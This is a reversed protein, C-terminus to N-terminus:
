NKSSKALAELSIGAAIHGEAEAIRDFTEQVPALDSSLKAPSETGPGSRLAQLIQRCDIRDISRAPAYAPESGSVEVLLDARKLSQLIQLVFQPPFKLHGAITRPSMPKDGRLFSRAVLTMLCLGALERGHQDINEAQKSQLYDERHQYCCAVQAGLLLILWSFYLGVLFVPMMGFSGYMKSYAVVKSVYLVNFQNNLQWLCGGVVGGVLAASWCVRTNPMLLYFVWFALSLVVYPLAFLVFTLLARGVMPFNALWLKTTEYQDSTTLGLVLIFILPGLTIAAWYNVVRAIWGRGHAIGWIDNFAAEITSLLSLAVLILGIMGTTGLTGSQINNIYGIIRRAVEERNTPREVPKLEPTSSPASDEPALAPQLDLQPAITAIFRDVMAHIQQEGKETKLLSTSVGVAVALLPVLALLTTYALASARVPCRNRWFSKLVQLWFWAFRRRRSVRQLDKGVIDKEELFAQADQQIRKLRGLSEDSM